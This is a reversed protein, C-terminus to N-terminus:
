MMTPGDAQAENERGLEIMRQRLIESGEWMDLRRAGEVAEIAMCFKFVSTEDNSTEPNFAEIRLVDHKNLAIRSGLDEVITRLEDFRDLDVYAYIAGGAEMCFSDEPWHSVAKYATEDLADCVGVPLVAFAKQMKLNYDVRIPALAAVGSKQDRFDPTLPFGAIPAGRPEDSMAIANLKM